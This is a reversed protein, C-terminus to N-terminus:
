SSNIQSIRSAGGTNVTECLHHDRDLCMHLLNRSKSKTFRIQNLSNLKLPTTFNPIFTFPSNQFFCMQLLILSTPLCTHFIAKIICLPLFLIYLYFLTLSIFTKWISILPCSHYHHHPSATQWHFSSMSSSSSRYICTHFLLFLSAYTIQICKIHLLVLFISIPQLLNSLHYSPNHFLLLTGHSFHFFFLFLFM